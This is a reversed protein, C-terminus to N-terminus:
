IGLSTLAKDLASAFFDADDHEFRLTPRVKLVNANPGAAGILVHEEKLANILATCTDEDPENGNKVIEVGTFLGVGRVDGISPHKSQIKRIQERLYDGNVAAKEALQDEEIIELVATGAACAGPTGGFTNFYGVKSCFCSLIEPRTVVAAMPYGNGMPKGMTVIDPTVGHRMFGWMKGTRGFGPQVEDCIFVGGEKHVIDIAKKIFGCPGAFVGDSSFISDFLIGAFKIGEKKFEDIAKQVNEAFYDAIQSDPIRYTDPTPITKVWQPIKGDKFSNPSVCTTLYSNGHYAAETVIIGQGGTFYFAERLALDNSESGTCTFTVNSLEEPFKSLLKEAYNDVIETMYRTHTNLLKLQKGVYEAVRPHGHGVCAVNNYCDLYKNGAKDYLWCGKGYSMDIPEHYFLVTADGFTKLRRLAHEKIEPKLDDTNKADFANLSLITKM